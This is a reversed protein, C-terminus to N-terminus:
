KKCFLERVKPSNAQDKLGIGQAGLVQSNKCLAKMTHTSIFSCKDKYRYRTLNFFMGM